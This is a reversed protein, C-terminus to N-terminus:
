IHANKRPFL